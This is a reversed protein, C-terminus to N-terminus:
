LGDFGLCDLKELLIEHSVVDFAKSFDLYIVDVVRGKDMWDAIRNYFILLQDETSRGGRFGFQLDSLLGNAELYEVIHAKILREMTKCCVSTLSVPRYNDRSYRSGAKFLPPVYALKWLAPLSSDLLSKQFIIFLPYALASACSKLLCPHFGDPGCATSPDLQQLVKLVDTYSFQVPPMLSSCLQHPSVQIPRGGRFHSCFVDALIECMEQPDTVLRGQHRLPGVPM